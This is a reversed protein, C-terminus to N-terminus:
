ENKNVETKTTANQASIFAALQQSGPDPSAHLDHLMGSQDAQSRNQGLKFKAEIRMIQITFGVIANLMAALAADPLTIKWPIPRHLEYKTTTDTVIQRLLAADEVVKAMGYVHVVAYNWNPVTEHMVYSSPSIYSHPGHFICLVKENSEFHRWQENARAMHSRLIGHGEKAEDYLVPLHSACLRGDNQTVVTAFGHAQIFSNIRTKDDVRNAAAIYM